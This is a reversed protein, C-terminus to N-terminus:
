FIFLRSDLETLLEVLFIWVELLFFNPFVVLNWNSAFPLTLSLPEWLGEMEILDKMFFASDLDITELFDPGLTTALEFSIM